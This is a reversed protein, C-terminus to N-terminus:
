NTPGLIPRLTTENEQIWYYIEKLIEEVGIEPKWGTRQSVKYNNTLYIRIDAQRNEPVSTISIKNGTIKSCYDTLERLSVSIENGGGVNFM